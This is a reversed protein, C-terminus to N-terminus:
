PPKRFTTHCALCARVVDPLTQRLGNLSHTRLNRAAQRATSARLSFADWHSWISDKANSLPDTHPKRFRRPINRVARVLAKRSSKAQAENFLIRGAMMDVLPALATKATTMTAMRKLVGPHEVTTQEQAMAPLTILLLIGLVVAKVRVSIM